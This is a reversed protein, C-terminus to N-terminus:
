NSGDLAARATGYGTAKLAAYAADRFSCAQRIDEDCPHRRLWGIHNANLQHERAGAVVLALYWDYPVLEINPARALYTVVSTQTGGMDIVFDDIRDYGGEARDLRPLDKPDIDYLVGQVFSQAAVALTAKGSGDVGPKSFELRFGRASAQGLPQASPCRARVRATLLNSGYAFYRVSELSYIRNAIDLLRSAGAPRAIISRSTIRQAKRMTVLKDRQHM